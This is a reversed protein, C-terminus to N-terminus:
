VGQLTYNYWESSPISTVDHMMNSLCCHIVETGKKEKNKIKTFNQKHCVQHDTDKERHGSGVINENGGGGDQHKKASGGKGDM